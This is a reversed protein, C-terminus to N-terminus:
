HMKPLNDPIGLMDDLNLTLRIGIVVADNPAFRANLRQTIDPNIIYEVNPTLQVGTVMTFGYNAELNYQDRKVFTTSGNRALTQNMFDTEARTFIVQTVMFGATDTPRFAFPGTDYLGLTNQQSFIERQDLPAAFSAFVALNRHSDDPRYIVQDALAYVGGRDFTNVLPAGGFMVRSQHQTNLLPDNAPSNNFWGGIRYHRPYDDNSFDSEYGVEFPVVVGTTTNLSLDFGHTTKRNPDVAYVGTQVYFHPAPNIRVRGGWSGYPFGSFNGTFVPLDYPCQSGSVFDCGFTPRAFTAAASVRGGYFNVLGDFLDQDYAFTALQFQQFPLYWDQSKIFNGIDQQLTDGYQATFMVHLRAGKWGVLTNLDADAGFTVAGANASGQKLGGIPNAQLDDYFNANILIGDDYLSRFPASLARLPPTDDPSVRTAPAISLSPAPAAPDAPVPAPTATSDTTQAHALGPLPLLCLALAALSTRMRLEMM